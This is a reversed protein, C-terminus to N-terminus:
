KQEVAKLHATLSNSYERELKKKKKKQICESSHTKKEASSGQKGYTKTYHAM